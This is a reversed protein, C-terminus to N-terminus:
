EPMKAPPRNGEPLSDFDAASAEHPGENCQRAM